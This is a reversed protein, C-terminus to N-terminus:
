QTPPATPTPQPAAAQLSCNGKCDKASQKCTGRTNTFAARCAQLCDRLKHAADSCGGQNTVGDGPGHDTVGDGQGDDTVGDGSGHDTVGDGPGHDTVGDDDGGNCAEVAAKQPACTVNYCMKRDANAGKHCDRHQKQCGSVCGGKGNGGNDGNGGDNQGPPRNPGKGPPPGHGNGPDAVAAGLSLAIVGLAICLTRMVRQRM